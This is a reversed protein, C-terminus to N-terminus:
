HSGEMIRIVENLKIFSHELVDLLREREVPDADSNQLLSLEERLLQHQRMIDEIQTVVDEEPELDNTSNEREETTANMWYDSTENQEHQSIEEPLYQSETEDELDEGEVTQHEEPHDHDSAEQDDIEEIDIPVHIPEEEVDEISLKSEDNRSVLLSDIDQERYKSSKVSSISSISSRVSESHDIRRSTPHTLLSPDETLQSSGNSVSWAKRQQPHDDVNLHLHKPMGINSFCMAKIGQLVHADSHHHTVNLKMKEGIHKNNQLNLHTLSSNYKMMDRMARAGETKVFNNRLDLSQVFADARFVEALAIATADGLRNDSVDITDLGSPRIKPSKEGRPVRLNYQWVMNHRRVQHHRLVQAVRKGSRDSLDCGSLDLVTLHNNQRLGDSLVRFADDGIMSESLSLTHLPMRDPTRPYDGQEWRDSNRALSISIARVAELSLRMNKLELIGLSSSISVCGAVARGLRASVLSQYVAPMSKPAKNTGSGRYDCYLTIEKLDSTIPLAHFVPMWEQATLRDCRAIIRRPDQRQVFATGERHYRSNLGAKRCGELYARLFEDM